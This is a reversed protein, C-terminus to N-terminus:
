YLPNIDLEMGNQSRLADIFENEIKTGGNTLIATVTKKAWNTLLICGTQSFYVSRFAPDDTRELRILNLAESDSFERKLLKQMLFDASCAIERATSFLGEAGSEGGLGYCLPDTTVGIRTKKGNGERVATPAIGEKPLPLAANSGRQVPRFGTESLGIEDLMYETFASNLDSAALTELILGLITFGLPSKRVVSDPKSEFPVTLIKQIITERDENGELQISVPLGSTHRLLQAITICAVNVRYAPADHVPRLGSFAPLVSNAASEVPIALKKMLNNLAYFTFCRTISGVDFLTLDNVPYHGNQYPYFGFADEQVQEGNYFICYQACFSEDVALHSKIWDTFFDIDAGFESMSGSDRREFRIPIPNSNM